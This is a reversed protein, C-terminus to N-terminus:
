KFEQSLEKWLRAVGFGREHVNTDHFLVVASKSLRSRWALFDSRVAEYTHFGDIHLLDISREAFHDRATNFDSRILQSFSSYNTQNHASIARYVDENITGAHEDGKWHDVGYCACDLELAQAAQCFVAYSFGSYVGLEVVTKPRLASILWFGFPAHELWASDGRLWKPTWYSAVSTCASIPNGASAATDNMTSHMSHGSSGPM